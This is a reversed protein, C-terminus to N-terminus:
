KRLYAKMRREVVLSIPNSGFSDGGHDLLTTTKTTGGCSRHKEKLKMHNCTKTYTLPDREGGRGGLSHTKERNGWCYRSTVHLLITVVSEVVSKFGV